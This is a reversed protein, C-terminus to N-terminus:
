EGNAFHMLLDHHYGWFGRVGVAVVTEGSQETCYGCYKHGASPGVSPLTGPMHTSNQLTSAQIKENDSGTNVSCMCQRSGVM